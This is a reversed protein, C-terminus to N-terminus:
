LSSELLERLDHALAPAITKKELALALTWRGLERYLGIMDPAQKGLAELHQRVTGVDGRAVPGTLAEVPGLTAVNDLTARVLPLLAALAAARDLGFTAWLGATAALLAVLSNSALSASAHYLPRAGPPLELPLAGLARALELLQTHLPEEAEIAVACGALSAPADARAFTQLPHFAGIWAGQRAAAELLEPGAAGSCHVVAQGKRWNVEEAVARIEGDPVTLFVLQALQSVQQASQAVLCNPLRAALAQARAATRSYVAVVTVGVEALRREGGL